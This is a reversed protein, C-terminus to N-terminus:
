QDRRRQFWGARSASQGSIRDSVTVLVLYDGARLSTIDLNTGKIVVGERSVGSRENLFVSSLPDIRELKDRRFERNTVLSRIRRRDEFVEYVVDLSSLGEKDLAPQRLEFYVAVTEANALLRRSPAPVIVQGFKVFKLPIPNSVRYPEFHQAVQVDSLEMLGPPGPERVDVELAKSTRRAGHADSVEVAIRHRGPVVRAGVTWMLLSDSSAGTASPMLQALSSAEGLSERRYDIREGTEDFLAWELIAMTDAFTAGEVQVYTEVVSEFEQRPFVASSMELTFPSVTAEGDFFSLPNTRTLGAINEATVSSTRWTSNMTPDTFLLSFWSGPWRYTWIWIRTNQPIQDAPTLRVGAVSLDSLLSSAGGADYFTSTPAGWRVWADGMETEWGRWGRDPDGFLVDAEVLRRWYLLKNTNYDKTPRANNLKWYSEVARTRATSDSLVVSWDVRDVITWDSDADRMLEHALAQPLLQKAIQELSHRSLVGDIGSFRQRESETLKALLDRFMSQAADLSDIGALGAAELWRPASDEPDLRAWRRAARLAAAHDQLALRTTALGQWAPLYTEDAGLAREFSEAARAFVETLMRRRAERFYFRGLQAAARPDDPFEEVCSELRKRAASPYRMRQAMTAWLAVADFREPQVESVKELLDLATRRHKFLNTALYLQALRMQLPGCQDSPLRYIEAELSDVRAFLDDRSLEQGELHWDEEALSLSRAARADVVEARASSSAIGVLCIIVKLVRLNMSVAPEPDFSERGLM